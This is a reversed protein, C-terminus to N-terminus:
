KLLYQHVLKESLASQLREIGFRDSFELFAHNWPSTTEFFEREMSRARAHTIGEQLDKQGPLRTVYYGHFLSFHDNQLVGRWPYESPDGTIKIRDPM